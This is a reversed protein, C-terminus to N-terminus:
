YMSTIMEDVSNDHDPVIALDRM